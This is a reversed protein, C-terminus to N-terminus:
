WFTGEWYGSSQFQTLIQNVTPDYLTLSGTQGAVKNIQGSLTYLEFRSSGNWFDNAMYFSHTGPSLDVEVSHGPLIGQPSTPFYQQNDIILPVIVYSSNNVIRTRSAPATVTVQVVNSYQTWGPTPGQNM